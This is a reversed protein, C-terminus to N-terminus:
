LTRAIRAFRRLGAIRLNLAGFRSECFLPETRSGELSERSDPWRLNRGGVQFGLRASGDHTSIHRVAHLSKLPGGVSAKKLLPSGSYAISVRQLSKHPAPPTAVGERVPRHWSGRRSTGLKSITPPSVTQGFEYHVVGDCECDSAFKTAFVWECPIEAALVFFQWKMRLVM